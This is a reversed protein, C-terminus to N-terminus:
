PKRTFVDNEEVKRVNWLWEDPHSDDLAQLMKLAEKDTGKFVRHPVSHDEWKDYDCDRDVTFLWLHSRPTPTTM